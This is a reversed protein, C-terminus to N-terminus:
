FSLKVNHAAPLALLYIFYPNLSITNDFHTYNVKAFLYFTLLHLHLM